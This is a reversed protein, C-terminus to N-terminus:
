NEIFNKLYEYYEKKYSIDNHGVELITKVSIQGSPFENILRLSNTKPIVEDNEAILIMARAKIYKIKRISDYKDKLLLFIPYIPFRKQAISRISDYPSVLIIKEINRKSALYTVIGTGLSRGMAHIKKHKKYIKDYLFLVDSFIGKETPNGSSGGYGRYNLLYLTKSPFASLFDEANHVVAEANGGCYIMAEDKNPNLVIVEITENKNELQLKEYGHSIKATPFYILKRQFIFLFLGVIVYIILLYTMLERIKKKMLM